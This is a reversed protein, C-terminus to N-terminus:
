EEPINFHLTSMSSIALRGQVDHVNFQGKIKPIKAVHIAQIIMSTKFQVQGRPHSFHDHIIM